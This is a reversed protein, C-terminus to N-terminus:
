ISIRVELSSILSSSNQGSTIYWLTSKMEPDCVKHNYMYKMNVIWATSWGRFNSFSSIRNTYRGSPTLFVHMWTGDKGWGQWNQECLTKLVFFRM